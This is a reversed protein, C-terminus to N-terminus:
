LIQCVALLDIPVKILQNNNDSMDTADRKRIETKNLVKGNSTPLLLDVKTTYFMLNKPDLNQVPHLPNSQRKEM